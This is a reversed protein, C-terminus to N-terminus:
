WEREESADGSSNLVLLRYLLKEADGRGRETVGLEDVRVLDSLHDAIHSEVNHERLSGFM